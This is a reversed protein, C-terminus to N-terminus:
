GRNDAIEALCEEIFRDDIEGYARLVKDTM